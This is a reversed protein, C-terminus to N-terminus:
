REGFVEDYLDNISGVHRIQIREPEFDMNKAHYRSIFIKDFGLREAELIRQELRNVSRIEGSLGIEGAFCITHALEIDELSSVLACLVAMDIAPDTVRLGGAINLFVDSQGFFLGCRKELVALLMHLRRMDFGTTSRQPTGYVASSVLAQTEILIPRQGELTAGVANGSKIADNQNLWLKSPNIVANLGGQNMEYIGLEDTSGFRNKITRLLRFVHHRDGEFQLVADVIHELVKPGAISGDKTIHGIVIVPIQTEKALRQLMTTSDRVQTITGPASDLQSSHVTQISDIILLSPELKQVELLIRELNTEALLYCHDQIGGIRDARLKIQQASEEGSVYLTKGKWAMAVQLLLTSKGIGPHGGILLISGPVIGGGTVRDFESDGTLMRDVQLSQVESIPIPKAPVNEQEGIKWAHGASAALQQEEHYTNWANCSPCNGIWKPSNAGCSSCVFQTKVKKKLHSYKGSGLFREASVFTFFPQNKSRCM